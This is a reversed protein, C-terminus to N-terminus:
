NMRAAKVCSCPSSRILASSGAHHELAIKYATIASKYDKRHEKLRGEMVYGLPM